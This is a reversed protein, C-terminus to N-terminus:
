ATPLLMIGQISPLRVPRGKRLPTRSNKYKPPKIVIHKVAERAFADTLYEREDVPRAGRYIPAGGREPFYSHGGGLFGFLAYALELDPKVPARGFM